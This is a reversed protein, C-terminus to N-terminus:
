AVRFKRIVDEPIELGLGPKAPPFMQGDEIRLPEATMGILYREIWPLFQWLVLLLVLAWFIWRLRRLTPDTEASM